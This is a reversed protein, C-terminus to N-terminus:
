DLSSYFYSNGRVSKTLDCKHKSALETGISMNIIGIQLADLFAKEYSSFARDKHVGEWLFETKCMCNYSDQQAPLAPLGSKGVVGTTVGNYIPSM